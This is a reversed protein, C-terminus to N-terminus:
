AKLIKRVLHDFMTQPLVKRAPALATQSFSGVVHRLAPNPQELLKVLLHAVIEPSPAKAEDEAQGKKTRLFAEAYASDANARAVHRRNAPLNTDIDGPEIIAM